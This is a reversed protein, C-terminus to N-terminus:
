CMTAARYGPPATLTDLQIGKNEDRWDQYFGCGSLVIGLGAWTLTRTLWQSFSRPRASTHM